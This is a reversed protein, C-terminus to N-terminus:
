QELHEPLSIKVWHPNGDIWYCQYINGKDTLAYIDYTDNTHAIAIQIIKEKM